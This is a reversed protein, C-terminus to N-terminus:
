KRYGKAGKSNEDGGDDEASEGDDEASEGDAKDSDDESENSDNGGEGDDVCDSSDDCTIHRNQKGSACDMCWVRIDTDTITIFFRKEVNDSSRWDVDNITPELKHNVTTMCENKVTDYICFKDQSCVLIENITAPNYSCLIPSKMDDPLNIPSPEISKTDDMPETIDIEEIGEGLLLIKDTKSTIKKPKIKSNTIYEKDELIPSGSVNASITIITSDAIISLKSKDANFSMGQGKVAFEHEEFPVLVFENENASVPSVEDDLEANNDINIDADNNNEEEILEIEDLEVDEDAEKNMEKPVGEKETEPAPMGGKQKSDENDLEILEDDDGNLEVSELQEDNSELNGNNSDLQENNFETEVDDKFLLIKFKDNENYGAFILNNEWQIYEISKTHTDLNVSVIEINTFENDKAVDEEISENGNYLMRCILTSTQSPEYSENIDGAVVFLMSGEAWDVDNIKSCQTQFPENLIMEGTSM